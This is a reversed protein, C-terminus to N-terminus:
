GIFKGVIGLILLMLLFPAAMRKGNLRALLKSQKPMDYLAGDESDNPYLISFGCAFLM